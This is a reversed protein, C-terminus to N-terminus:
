PKVWHGKTDQVLGAKIAEISVRAEESKERYSSVSLILVIIVFMALYAYIFPINM